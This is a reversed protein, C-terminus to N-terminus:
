VWDSPGYRQLSPDGVYLKKTITGGIVNRLEPMSNKSMQISKLASCLRERVMEM